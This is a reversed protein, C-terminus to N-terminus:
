QPDVDCTFNDPCAPEGEFCPQGTNPCVGLPAPYPECEVVFEEPLPPLDEVDCEDHRDCAIKCREISPDCLYGEGFRACEADSACYGDDLLRDNEDAVFRPWSCLGPSSKVFRGQGYTTGLPDGEVEIDPPLEQANNDDNNSTSNDDEVDAVERACGGLAVALILGWLWTKM